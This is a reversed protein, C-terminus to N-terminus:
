ALEYTETEHGRSLWTRTMFRGRGKAALCGHVFKDPKFNRQARSSAEARGVAAIDALDMPKTGPACRAESRNIFGMWCVFMVEQDPQPLEVSKGAAWRLPVTKQQKASPIAGASATRAAPM